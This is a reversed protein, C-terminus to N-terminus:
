CFPASRVVNSCSSWVVWSLAALALAVEDVCCSAAVSAAKNDACSGVAETSEEAAM